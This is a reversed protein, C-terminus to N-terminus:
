RIRGQRRADATDVAGRSWRSDIRAADRGTLLATARGLCRLGLSFGYVPAVTLCGDRLTSFTVPLM